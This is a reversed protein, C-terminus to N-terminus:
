IIIAASSRVSVYLWVMFLVANGRLNVVVKGSYWTARELRTMDKQSHLAASKFRRDTKSGAAVRVLCASFGRNRVTGKSSESSGNLWDTEQDFHVTNQDSDWVEDLNKRSVSM